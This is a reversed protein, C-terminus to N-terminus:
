DGDLFLRHNAVVTASELEPRYSAAARVLSEEPHRTYELGSAPASVTLVPCPALRLVEEAVTGLLGPRWGAAGHTTLVILDAGEEKAARVIETAADGERLLPRSHISPPVQEELIASLNGVAEARRMASDTADGFASSYCTGLRSPAEVHVVCLESFGPMAVEVARQLGERAAESFDTPCLIKKFATM